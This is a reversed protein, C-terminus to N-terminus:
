SGNRLERPVTIVYGSSSSGFQLGYNNKRIFGNEVLYNISNIFDSSSCCCVEVFKKDFILKERGGDLSGCIHIYVMILRHLPSEFPFDFAINSENIEHNNM